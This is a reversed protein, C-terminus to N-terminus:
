DDDSIEVVGLGFLGGVKVDGATPTFAILVFEDPEPETDGDVTITITAHTDGPHFTVTGDGEPYDDPTDAPSADLFDALEDMAAAVRRPQTQWAVTIPQDSPISLSV